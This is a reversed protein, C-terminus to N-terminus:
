HTPKHSARQHNTLVEPQMQPFVQGRFLITADAHNGVEVWRPTRTWTAQVM